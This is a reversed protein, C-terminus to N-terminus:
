IDGVIATEPLRHGLYYNGSETDDIVIKRSRAKKRLTGQNTINPESYGNTKIRGVDWEPNMQVEFMIDRDIVSTDNGSKDIETKAENYAEYHPKGQKIKRREILQLLINKKMQTTNPIMAVWAENPPIIDPLTKDNGGNVFSIDYHRKIYDGNVLFVKLNGSRYQPLEIKRLGVAQVKRPKPILDTEIKGAKDGQKYQTIVEGRKTMKLRAFGLDIIPTDAKPKGGLVNISQKRTRFIGQPQQKSRHKRNYPPEVTVWSDDDDKYVVTGKKYLQPEKELQPKKAIPLKAEKVVTSKAVVLKEPKAVKVKSEEEKLYEAFQPNNSLFYERQEKDMKSMGDLIDKKDIEYHKQSVRQLLEKEAETEESPPMTPPLEYKVTPRQKVGRIYDLRDQTPMDEIEIENFGMDGLKQKMGQMIIQSEPQEVKSEEVEPVIGKIDVVEDKTVEVYNKGTSMDMRFNGGPVQVEGEKIEKWYKGDKYEYGYEKIEKEAGSTSEAMEPEVELESEVRGEGTQTEQNDEKIPESELTEKNEVKPLADIEADLEEIEGKIYEEPNEEESEEGSEVAEWEQETMEEPPM